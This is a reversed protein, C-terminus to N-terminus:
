TSKIQDSEFDVRIRDGTIGTRKITRVGASKCWAEWTGMYLKQFRIMEILSNREAIDGLEEKLSASIHELSALLRWIEALEHQGFKSESKAKKRSEEKRYYSRLSAILPQVLAKQQGSTLGGAIRRWFIWWEARCAQNRGNIVGKQQLMWTQKVRWDDVAYGYGPRLSFGTLNLWRAEHLPDVARGQEVEM